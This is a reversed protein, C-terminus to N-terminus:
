NGLTNTRTILLTRGGKLMAKKWGTLPLLSAPSPATHTNTNSSGEFRDFHDYYCLTTSESRRETRTRQM